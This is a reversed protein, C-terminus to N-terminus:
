RPSNPPRAVRQNAIAAAASGAESGIDGTAFQRAAADANAIDTTRGGPTGTVNARLGFGELLSAEATSTAAVAQLAAICDVGEPPSRDEAQADRCAVIVQQPVTPPAATRSSSASGNTRPVPAVRVAGSTTSQVRGSSVQEVAIPSGSQAYSLSGSLAALAALHAILVVLM